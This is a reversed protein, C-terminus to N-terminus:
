KKLEITVLDKVEKKFQEKNTIELYKLKAMIIANLKNNSKFIVHLPTSYSWSSFNYEKYINYKKYKELQDESLVFFRNNEEFALKAIGNLEYFRFERSKALDNKLENSVIFTTNNKIIDNAKFNEIISQQYIWDINYKLQEKIHFISFSVILIIYLFIKVEKRFIFNIGYYLIFSFGLPILVQFRSEWDNSNPVKGVVIYPFTALLFIFIGFIFLINNSKNVVVEDNIKKVLITYLIIIFFLAIFFYTFPKLASIIPELINLLFLREYIEFTTANMLNIQNYSEYTGFPKFWVSKIIYFIIPLLIFDINTKIFYIINKFINKNLSYNVYFIYILVIAYFVLISNVLFSIFFLSLIFIRKRIVLNGYANSLLYFALFFIFSFLTYPFNILAIKGNYLPALLFFIILFIADKRSFLVVTNLIKFVFWGSLFLLVFTLIRYSFVGLYNIMFYHLYSTIYGASGVAQTFMANLTELDQDVIVWDDWYIGNYNLLFPINVIFYISFLIWFVKKNSELFNM